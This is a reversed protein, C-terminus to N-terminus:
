ENVISLVYEKSKKNEVYFELEKGVPVQVKFITSSMKRTIPYSIKHGKVKYYIGDKYNPNLASIKVAYIDKTPQEQQKFLKQVGGFFGKSISINNEKKVEIKIKKPVFTSCTTIEEPMHIRLTDDRLEGCLVVVKMPESEYYYSNTRKYQNLSILSIKTYDDLEHEGQYPKGNIDFAESLKSSMKEIFSKTNIQSLDYDVNLKIVIFYSANSYDWTLYENGKNDSRSKVELIYYDLERKVIEVKM